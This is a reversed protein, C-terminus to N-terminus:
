FSFYLFPQIDSTHLEIVLQVVILFALLKMMWPWHIFKAEAHRYLKEGVFLSLLSAALLICWTARAAFFTEAHSLDMRTFISTLLQQATDLDPSRFFAWCLIVFCLTIIRSISITLWNDRIDRLFPQFLKHIALGIGHLAGWILFMLTSGHWIGAAIM